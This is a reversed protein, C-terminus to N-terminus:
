RLTWKMPPYVVFRIDNSNARNVMRKTGTPGRPSKNISFVEHSFREYTKGMTVAKYNSDQRPEPLEFSTLCLPMTPASLYTSGYRWGGQRDM